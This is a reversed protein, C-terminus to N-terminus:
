RVRNDREQQFLRSSLVSYITIFIYLFVNFSYQM